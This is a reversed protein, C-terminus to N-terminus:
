RYVSAGLITYYVVRIGFVVAISHEVMRYEQDWIHGVRQIDLYMFLLLFICGSTSKM